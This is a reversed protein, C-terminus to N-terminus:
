FKICVNSWEARKKTPPPPPQQPPTQSLFNSVQEPIQKLNFIGILSQLLKRKNKETGQRLVTQLLKQLLPLFNKKQSNNAIQNKLEKALLIFEEDYLNNYARILIKAAKVYIDADYDTHWFDIGGNKKLIKICERINQINNNHGQMYLMDLPTGMDDNDISNIVYSKNKYNKLKDILCQLIKTTELTPNTVAMHIANMRLIINNKVIESKQEILNYSQKTSVNDLFYKVLDVYDCAVAIQFATYGLCDYFSDKLESDEKKLNEYTTIIDDAHTGGEAIKSLLQYKQEQNKVNDFLYKVIEDECYRVAYEFVSGAFWINGKKTKLVHQNNIYSFIKNKKINETINKIKHIDNQICYELLMKNNSNGM